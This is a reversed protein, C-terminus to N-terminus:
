AAHIAAILEDWRNWTSDGSMAMYLSVRDLLGDYRERLRAGVERPPCIIAVEEIFKEPVVNAMEDLKGERM